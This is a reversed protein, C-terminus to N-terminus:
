LLLDDQALADPQAQVSLAPGTHLISTFISWVPLGNVGAALLELGPWPLVMSVSPRGAEAVAGASLTSSFDLESLSAASSLPSPLWGAISLVLLTRISPGAM